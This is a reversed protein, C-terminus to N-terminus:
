AGAQLNTVTRDGDSRALWWAAVAAGVNCAAIAWGVPAASHIGGMGVLPSIVAALLMSIVGMLASASGAA